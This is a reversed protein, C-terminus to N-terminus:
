EYLFFNNMKEPTESQKRKKTLRLGIPDIIMFSCRTKGRQWIFGYSFFFYIFYVWQENPDNQETRETKM